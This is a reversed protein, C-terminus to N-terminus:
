GRKRLSGVITLEATEYGLFRNLDVRTASIGSGALSLLSLSLSCFSVIMVIGTLAFAALCLNMNGWGLRHTAFSTWLPGVVTGGSIACNFLAFAQAYAGSEGFLTPDRRGV